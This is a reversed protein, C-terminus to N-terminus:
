VTVGVAALSRQILAITKDVGAYEDGDRPCSEIGWAGQYGAEVLLRIVRPIDVTPENGDADFEFTKIHTARAYRACLEWGREQLGPAWNNSDFLLGLGPVADLIKVVNDPIPSPGWHNEILIELGKEKGRAVLDTYGDVIIAFIDDPMEAPGGADIRVQNAGLTHAIELWRYALLRNAQRAAPDPEYIHAGDVAILGFPLGVADAAARVDRLYADDRPPLQAHLPDSGAAKVQEASEVGALHANWPDLQTCGVAKCDTIYRFIDQKGAALLRHFSFSCISLQM